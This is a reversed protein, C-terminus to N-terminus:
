AVASAPTPAHRPKNPDAGAQPGVVRNRGARKAEYLSGDARALLEDLSESGSLAAVGVSVTVRLPEPAHDTSVVTEAVTQRLREATQMAQALGAEPLVVAFEEGGIRGRIDADRLALALRAAVLKLVDDGAAHGHRDNVAKFHDIDLMLVCLERRHRQALGCAAEAREMFYRRNGLGTLPDRIALESLQRQSVFLARFLQDFQRSAFVAIGCAPWILANFALLPFGPAMGLAAQINPVLPIILLVGLSERMSFPLLVLPTILYIYMYGPFGARYGGSLRAWIELVVFEIVLIAVYGAVLKLPRRVRSALSVAYLAVGSAMLLRWGLTTYAGLPDDAYDRLWLGLVLVAGAIALNRSVGSYEAFRAAQYERELERSHTM